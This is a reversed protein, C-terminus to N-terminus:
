ASVPLTSANGDRLARYSPSLIEVGAEAFSDQINAHLASYLAPLESARGPDVAVNIQYEVYSDDLVRQLVFPVPDPLAGGTGAAAALLLEHVRRWPTDYGITVSSHLFLAEGHERATTFDTVGGGVVVGNPLTVYENKPTRLRTSLLGLEVVTGQIRNVEIFDGVKFSRSYMLVLGSMAQGVLGASGLTFLLGALVSVGRFASSESGPLHPYAVAIAFVWLLGQAIRRTPRATEPHVGPLTIRREEVAVFLARLVGNAFRAVLFILVVVFVDPVARLIGLGLSALTDLLFNGLADGWASTWVFRSLVFTLYLYGLGLGVLWAVVAASVRAGQLLQETRLVALGRVNLRPAAAQALSRLRAATARGIRVLVRLGVLLVLTALLTLGLSVLLASLTM